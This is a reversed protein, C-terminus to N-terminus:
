KEDAKRRTRIAAILVDGVTNRILLVEYLEGNLDSFIYQEALENRFAYMADADDEKFAQIHLLDNKNSVGLYALKLGKYQIGKPPFEKATQPVREEIPTCRVSFLDKKALRAM